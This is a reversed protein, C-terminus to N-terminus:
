DSIWVWTTWNSGIRALLRSIDSETDLGDRAAYNAPLAFAHSIICIRTGHQGHAPFEKWTPSLWYCLSAIQCGPTYKIIDEM